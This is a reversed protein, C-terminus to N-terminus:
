DNCYGETLMGLAEPAPLTSHADSDGDQQNALAELEEDSYGALDLSKISKPSMSLNYSETPKEGLTDRVFRAAEVDGRAARSIMAFPIANENTPEIGAAALMDRLAEDSVDCTMISSMVERMAKRRRRALGSAEGGRKGIERARDPTLGGEQNQILNATGDYRAM